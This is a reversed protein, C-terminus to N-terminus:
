YPVLFAFFNYVAKKAIGEAFDVGPCILSNLKYMHQSECPHAWIQM